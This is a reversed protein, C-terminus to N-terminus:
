RNKVKVKILSPGTKRTLIARLRKTLNLPMGPAARPALQMLLGPSESQKSHRFGPHVAHTPSPNLILNSRQFAAPGLFAKRIPNRRFM